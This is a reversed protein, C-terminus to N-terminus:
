ALGCGIVVLTDKKQFAEIEATVPTRNVSVHFETDGEIREAFVEIVFPVRSEHKGRVAKHTRAGERICYGSPCGPIERGLAGLRSPKVTKAFKRARELVQDAEDRSLDKALRM